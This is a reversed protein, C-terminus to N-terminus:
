KVLETYTGSLLLDLEACNRIDPLGTHAHPPPASSTFIATLAARDRTPKSAPLDEEGAALRKSRPAPQLLALPPALPEPEFVMAM